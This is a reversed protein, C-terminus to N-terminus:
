FWGSSGFDIQYSPGYPRALDQYGYYIELKNLELDKKYVTYTQKDSFVPTESGNVVLYFGVPGYIKEYVPDPAPLEGVNIEYYSEYELVSATPIEFSPLPYTELHSIDTVLTEIQSWSPILDNPLYLQDAYRVANIRYVAAPQEIKQGALAASAMVTKFITKTMQKRADGKAFYTKQNLEPKDFGTWTALSYDPTFGVVFSDRDVGSPYGYRKAVAQDYAGTGTKAGVAINKLSVRGLGSYDGAVLNQLMDAVIYSTEPSTIRREVATDQYLVEGSRREISSVFSPERYIGGNAFIQYAAALNVLNVGETMGGLGYSSTYPGADMLNLSRLHEELMEAGYTSTLQNLTQIATTNKSYGLADILAMRGAYNGGANHVVEGSLYNTPEDILTTAKNYGLKDVALLYEFVPKITSAPGVKKDYARNFLRAGQYNRGGGVAKVHGTANEILALGFQQLDDAFTLLEGSQIRDVTNQINPDLYTHIELPESYPDVDAVRRVEEYVCDLYAQYPLADTETPARYLLAEVAVGSSHRYEAATILDLDLMKKLVVNKRREAAEPHNFPQYATPSKVLGVLTACETLSLDQVKKNFYKRAAYSIGPFVPDFNVQNFYFELITKKDYESELKFSLLLENVKRELTQESSLFLNRALQQTLTSAGQLNSSSTLNHFVSGFVRHIDVGSHEYYSNDEIAVIADLLMQPLEDYSVHGEDSGITKIEQGNGDYIRSAYKNPIKVLEPDDLKGAAWLLYSGGSVFFVTLIVSYILFLRSLIKVSKKQPEKKVSIRKM